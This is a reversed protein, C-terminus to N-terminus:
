LATQLVEVNNEVEFISIQSKVIKPKNLVLNLCNKLSDNSIENLFERISLRKVVCSLSFERKVSSM